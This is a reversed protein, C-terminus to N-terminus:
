PSEQQECKGEGGEGGEEEVEGGGGVGRGGRTRGVGRRIGGAEEGEEYPHTSKEIKKVFKSLSGTKSLFRKYNINCFFGCLDLFDYYM